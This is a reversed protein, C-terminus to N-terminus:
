EAAVKALGALVESVKTVTADCGKLDHREKLYEPDNYSLWVKNDEDTWVLMKQPLDIAALQNCQILPTGVKPNGFIIVETERIKLDVGAANKQHDIRTFLTLGKQELVSVFKDATEKASHHSEVSIVSETANANITGFCAVFIFPIVKKM